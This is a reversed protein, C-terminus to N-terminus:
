EEDVEVFQFIEEISAGLMKSIDYALKLSPNYQGRELRAITERRVGTREALESQTLRRERRLEPIRTKLETM